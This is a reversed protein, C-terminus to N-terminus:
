FEERVVEVILSHRECILKYGIIRSVESQFEPRLVRGLAAKFADTRLESKMWRDITFGLDLCGFFRDGRRSNCRLRLAM